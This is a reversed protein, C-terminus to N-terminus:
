MVNWILIRGPRSACFEWVKADYRMASPYPPIISAAQNYNVTPNIIVVNDVNPCSPAFICVGYYNNALNAKKLGNILTGSGLACWLEDFQGLQAKLTLGLQAISDIVEPYNLGSQLLLRSGDQVYKKAYAFKDQGPPIRIINAGFEQAIRTYPPDGESRQDIILTAIKKGYGEKKMLLCTWALAIQFGGYWPSVYVYESVRPHYQTLYDFAVRSKTGGCLLDDRVITIDQGPFNSIRSVQLSFNSPHILPSKKCANHRHTYDLEDAFNSM